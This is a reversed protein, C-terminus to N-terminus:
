FKLKVGISYNKTVTFSEALVVGLYFSQRDNAIYEGIYNNLFLFGIFHKNVSSISPSRGLLKNREYYDNNSAIDRTQAWDAVILLNSVVRYDIANAKLAFM